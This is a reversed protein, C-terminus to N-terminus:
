FFGIKREEFSDAVSTEKAHNFLEALTMETEVKIDLSCHDALRQCEPISLKDFKYEMFLRGKRLLAPDVKALACNFTCIVKMKMSDKLFGDTIGLINQTGSNRDVSLIEEADEILLVSGQNDLMFSIFSPQSIVSVMSPPIYIVNYECKTILNKIFNSKGTGPLGHLLLLNETDDSTVFNLMKDYPFKDGYYLDYRDDLIPIDSFSTKLKTLGQANQSIMYFEKQSSYEFIINLNFFENLFDLIKEKNKALPTFVILIGDSDRPTDFEFALTINEPIDPLPAPNISVSVLMLFDDNFYHGLEYEHINYQRVANFSYKRLFEHMENLHKEPISYNKIHISTSSLNGYKQEFLSPYESKTNFQNADDVWYINDLCKLIEKKNNIM